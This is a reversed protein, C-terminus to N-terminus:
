LERWVVCVCVCAVGCWASRLGAWGLWAELSAAAAPRLAWRSQCPLVRCTCISGLRPPPIHTPEMMWSQASSVYPSLCVIIPFMVRLPRPSFATNCNTYLIIGVYYKFITSTYVLETKPILHSFFYGPGRHISLPEPKWWFYLSFTM